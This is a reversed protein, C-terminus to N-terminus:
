FSNLATLRENICDVFANQDDMHLLLLDCEETFGYLKEITQLKTFFIAINHGTSEKALGLNAVKLEDSQMETSCLEIKEIAKLDINIDAILGNKLILKNPTLVSPRYLLAKVHGIIMFGTYISTATFLWAALSSWKQLLVHFAVTEICVVMLLACALAITANEKYNTFENPRLKAKKWAFFAYYLMTIESAFFSAYKSKGFLEQASKKSITYFDKALASNSKYITIGAYIKRFVITFVTLEIVPLVYSIIYDLHERGNEPLLYTAILTGGVFFPVAKLKSVKSKQSLFLFLLPATLTFDYTLATTLQPYKSLLPSIAIGVSILVVLLPLGYTLLQIRNLKVDGM